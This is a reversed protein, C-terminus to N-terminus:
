SCWAITRRSRSASASRCCAPVTGTFRPGWNSGNWEWTDQFITQSVSGGFLVVVQRQPDYAMAHDNRPSPGAVPRQTWGTGNWTWTDGLTPGFLQNGGFIVTEGRAGDFAVAHQQRGPPSM